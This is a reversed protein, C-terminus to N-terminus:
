YHTTTLLGVVSGNKNCRFFLRSLKGVRMDIRILLKATGANRRMEGGRGMYLRCTEVRARFM